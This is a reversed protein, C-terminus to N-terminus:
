LERFQSDIGQYGLADADMALTRLAADVDPDGNSIPSAAPTAVATRTQALALGPQETFHTLM